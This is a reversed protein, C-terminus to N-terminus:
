QAGKTREWFRWWPRREKQPAPPLFRRVEARLEAVERRLEALERLVETGVSAETSAQDQADMQAVLREVSVKSVVWVGGPNRGAEKRGDLRGDYIWRKITTTSKGLCESAEKVTIREIDAM